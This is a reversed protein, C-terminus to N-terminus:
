AARRIPILERADLVPHRIGTKRRLIQLAEFSVVTQEGAIHYDGFSLPRGLRRLKWGTPSLLRELRQDSVSVMSNLDMALAFEMIGCFLTGAVKRCGGLSAV